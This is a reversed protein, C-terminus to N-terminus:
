AWAGPLAWRWGEPLRAGVRDSRRPSGRALLRAGGGGDLGSSEGCSSPDGRPGAVGRSAPKPGGGSM